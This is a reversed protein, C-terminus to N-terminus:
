TYMYISIHDEVNEQKRQVFYRVFKTDHIFSNTGYSQHVFSLSPDRIIYHHTLTCAIKIHFIFMKYPKSGLAVALKNASAIHMPSFIM